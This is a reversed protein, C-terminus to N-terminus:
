LVELARLLYACKQCNSLLIYNYLNNCQRSKLQPISACLSILLLNYGQFQLSLFLNHFLISIKNILTPLASKIISKILNDFISVRRRFDTGATEILLPIRLFEVQIMLLYLCYYQCIWLLSAYILDNMSLTWMNLQWCISVIAM